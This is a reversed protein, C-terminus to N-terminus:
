IIKIIYSLDEKKIIIKSTKIRIVLISIWTDIHSDNEM